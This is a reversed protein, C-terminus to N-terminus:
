TQDGAAIRARIRICAELCKRCEVKNKRFIRARGLYYAILERDTYDRWPKEEPEMRRRIAKRVAKRLWKPANPKIHGYLPM